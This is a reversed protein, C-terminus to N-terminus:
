SSIYWIIIWNCNARSKIIQIVKIAFDIIDQNSEILAKFRHNLRNPTSATKSTKFFDQYDDFFGKLPPPPINKLYKYHPNTVDHEPSNILANKVDEINMKGTKINNLYFQLGIEDAEWKLFEKYFEKIMLDFNEYKKFM